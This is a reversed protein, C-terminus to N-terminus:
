SSLHACGASGSLSRCAKRVAPHSPSHCWEHDACLAHMRSLFLRAINKAPPRERLYAALAKAVPPLLPLEIHVKTKPRRAKLVGARWDVDELRLTLIEAAGLGYTALLLLMAFDRKATSDSRRIAQLISRVERWPLTRPPRSSARFRPSMVGTALDKKLHGTAQLFRLFARLSSCTDVVASTSLLAAVEQVFADVDRLDIRSLGRRRQRICHLFRRATDLDRRLTAEAVGNHARRYATYESLLPPLAAALAPTRWAPVAEGMSRLACAWAHVASRASDLSAAKPKGKAKPWSYSTLFLRLGTASAQEVEDLERRLCYRRFRHVWGLYIQITLESLRGRRWYDVVARERVDRARTRM